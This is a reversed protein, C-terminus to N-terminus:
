TNRCWYEYTFNTHLESAKNARTHNLYACLKPMMSRIPYHEEQKKKEKKLNGWKKNSIKKM